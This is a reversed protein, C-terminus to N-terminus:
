NFKKYTAYRSSSEAFIKRTREWFEINELRKDQVGWIYDYGLRFSYEKLMKGAGIGRYNPLVALAIGQLGNDSLSETLNIETDDRRFDPIKDLEIEDIFENISKEKLLYVGIIEGGCEVKLSIGNAIRPMLKKRMEEKSGSYKGFVEYLVDLCKEFDSEEIESASCNLSNEFMKYGLVRMHYNRM